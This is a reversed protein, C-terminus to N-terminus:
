ASNVDFVKKATAPRETRCPLPASGKTSMKTRGISCCRTGFFPSWICLVVCCPVYKTLTQSLSAIILEHQETCIIFCTQMEM